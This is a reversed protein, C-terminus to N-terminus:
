CFAPGNRKVPDCRRGRDIRPQDEGHRRSRRLAAARARRAAATLVALQIGSTALRISENQTPGEFSLIVDHVAGLKTLLDREALSGVEEDPSVVVTIAGYGQVDLAHLM